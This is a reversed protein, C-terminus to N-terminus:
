CFPYKLELLIRNSILQSRHIFQSHFFSQDIKKYGLYARVKSSSTSCGYKCPNCIKKIYISAWLGSQCRYFATSHFSSPIVNSSNIRHYLKQKEREKSQIELNTYCGATKSGKNLEMVIYRTGKKTNDNLTSHLACLWNTSWIRLSIECEEGITRWIPCTQSITKRSRRQQIHKKHYWYTESNKSMNRRQCKTMM